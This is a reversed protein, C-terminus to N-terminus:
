ILFDGLYARPTKASYPLIKKANEGYASLYKRHIYLIIRILKFVTSESIRLYNQTGCVVRVEDYEERVSVYNGRIRRICSFVTNEAYEGHRKFVKRM